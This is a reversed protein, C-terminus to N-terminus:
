FDFKYDLSISIVSLPLDIFAVRDTSIKTTKIAEVGDTLDFDEEDTSIRKCSLVSDLGPSISASLNISFNDSLNKGIIGKLYANFGGSNASFEDKTKLQYIGARETTEETLSYNFSNYYADIGIGWNLIDSQKYYLYSLSIQGSSAIKENRNISLFDSGSDINKYTKSYNKSDSSPIGLKLGIRTSNIGYELKACVDNKISPYSIDEWQKGVYNRWLANHNSYHIVNMCSNEYGIGLNLSNEAKVKPIKAILTGAILVALGLKATKNFNEKLKEKLSKKM